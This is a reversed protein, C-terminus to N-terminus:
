EFHYSLGLSFADIAESDIDYRDWDLHAAFGPPMWRIRDLGLELGLGFSLDIGDEEVERSTAGGKLSYESRWAFAGLRAAARLQPLYNLSHRYVGSLQWGQATNPHVDSSSALFADIDAANGTFTTEVEGLDVYAVEVGWNPTIDYGLYVQWSGRTDDSSRAQADLGSSALESNLDGSGTDGTAWGLGGGLSWEGAMAENGVLTCAALVVAIFRNM